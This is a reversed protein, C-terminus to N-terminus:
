VLKKPCFQRFVSVIPLPDFDSVPFLSCSFHFIDFTHMSNCIINLGCMFKIIKHKPGLCPFPLVFFSFYRM